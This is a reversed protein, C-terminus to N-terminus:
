LAGPPLTVITGQRAITDHAGPGFVWELHQPMDSIPRVTLQGLSRLQGVTERPLVIGIGGVSGGGAKAVTREAFLRAVAPNTTTFLPRGPQLEFAEAVEATTGHLFFEQGALSEGLEAQIAGRIGGGIAGGTLAQLVLPALAIATNQAFGGWIRTASGPHANANGHARMGDRAIKIGVDATGLGINLVPNLPRLAALVDPGAGSFRDGAFSERGQRWEGDDHMPRESRAPPEERFGNGPSGPDIEYEKGGEANRGVERVSEGGCNVVKADDAGCSDLGFPDVSTTARGSVYAYPNLDAGMAHIALPDASAWQHLNPAYYRAGFYTLGIEVDDEKGTFRMPERHAGWRAPRLDQDTAGYTQYTVREALEGTEYDLTVTSSGLEDALSLFMHRDTGSPSPLSPDIRVEAMGGLRARQQLAGAAYDGDVFEAADIRLTPLVNATTRLVEVEDRKWTVVREGMSYGFRLDRVPTEAPVGRESASAPPAVVPFSTDFDWRRARLLRGAEDWDYAFWQLCKSGTGTECVGPARGVRRDVLLEVLNGAEDYVATVGEASRLQNPGDTTTGHTVAGLSRDWRLSADDSSHTINGLADYTFTQGYIRELAERPPVPARNGSGTESQFPNVWWAATTTAYANSVSTVRYEDDYTYGRQLVPQALGQNLAALDTVILPNDVDDYLNVLIEHLTTPTTESSDPAPYTPTAQTWIPSPSRYTSAHWLRERDDYEFDSKTDAGDGYRLHEVAGSPRYTAQRLLLGYSTNLATPRGFLDRTWQEESAGNVLLEAASDNVGSTRRLLRNGLDYDLRSKFRTTAYAQAGLPTTTDDSPPTALERALQRMRGRGDVNMQTHSARDRVAVLSGEAFIASDSFTGDAATQGAEYADYTYAVEFGEGTALNAPTYYPQRWSCPSYDEGVMRGLGDYYYDVGCGRADNAGLLKGDRTYIYRWEGVNPENQQRVRGLTDYAATRTYVLAGNDFREVKTVEGTILHEAKTSVSHLSSGGFHLMEVLNGRHDTLTSTYGGARVPTLEAADRRIVEFVREYSFALKPIAGGSPSLEDVQLPRGFGDYTYHVGRDLPAFLAGPASALSAPSGVWTQPARSFEVRGLQDPASSTVIWQLGSGAFSMVGEGVGNMLTVSAVETGTELVAHSEVYSLPAGLGYTTTGALVTAFPTEPDPAYTEAVRGFDDLVATSMSGNPAFHATPRGTGRDYAFSDILADSNCGHKFRRVTVPFQAYDADYTTNGCTADAGEQPTPDGTRQVVNGFADYTMTAVPLMQLLTGTDASRGASFAGGTPHQRTLPAGDGIGAEIVTPGAWSGTFTLKLARRKKWDPPELANGPASQEWLTVHTPRCIYNAGCDLAPPEGVTTPSSEDYDRYTTLALQTAYGQVMEADQEWALFGNADYASTRLVTRAGAQQHAERIPDGHDASPALFGLTVGSDTRFHTTEEATVRPRWFGRPADGTFSRPHGNWMLRKSWLYIPDSRGDVGGPLFRDVRIPKGIRTKDETSSGERCRTEPDSGNLAELSDNECEGFWYSTETVAEEGDQRESVSRFGVVRREWADYAPDRYEYRTRRDVNFPEALAQASRTRIATVVAGTARSHHQWPRTGGRAELDLDQITRYTVTTNAGRGNDIGTLLGPRPAHVGVDGTVRRILSAVHAGTTTLLVVDDIGDADMDAFTLKRDDRYHNDEPLDPPQWGMDFSGHVDDFFHGVSCSGGTGACAFEHGDLNVWVWLEVIPPANPDYHNEVLKVIDALGDGTVDHFATEGDFPLPSNPAAPLVPTYFPTIGGADCPWAQRPYACAFGGRGDGPRITPRGNNSAADVTVLDVLGDGNVDVYFHRPPDTVSSPQELPALSASSGDLKASPVQTPRAHGDEGAAFRQSYVVNAPVLSGSTTPMSANLRDVLGDGDVDVYWKGPAMPGAPATWSNGGPDKRWQWQPHFNASDFGEDRPRQPLHCGDDAGGAVPWAIMPLFDSDSWAIGSRHWSGLLTAGGSTTLFGARAGRALAIGVPTSADTGIGADMCQHRLQVGAASRGENLYGVMPRAYTEPHTYSQGGEETQCIVADGTAPNAELYTHGPASIWGSPNNWEDHRQCKPWASWSQVFDPLGDRDIDVIAVGSVDYFTTRDQVYTGSTTRSLQATGPVIPGPEYSFTIPPLIACDGSFAIHNGSEVRGCRGEQRIRKLFAEHFLPADLSPDYSSPGRSAMYDLRYIREVLRAGRASFPMAAVGIASLLRRPATKLPSGYTTQNPRTTWSLELHYAWDSDSPAGSRPPTYFVDTLYSHGGGADDRSYRYVAQDQAAPDPNRADVESTLHWRVIGPRPGRDHEVATADGGFTMQLGGMLQVRWM